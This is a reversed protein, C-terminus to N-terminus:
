LLLSVILLNCAMMVGRANASGSASERFSLIMSELGLLNLVNVDDVPNSIVSDDVAVLFLVDVDSVMTGSVELGLVNGTDGLVTPVNSKSMAFFYPAPALNSPVCYMVIGSLM